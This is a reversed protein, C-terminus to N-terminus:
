ACRTARACGSWNTSSRATFIPTTSGWFSSSYLGSQWKKGEKPCCAPVGDASASGDRRQRLNALMGAPFPVCMVRLPDSVVGRSSEGQIPLRGKRFLFPGVIRGLGDMLRPGIPVAALQPHYHLFTYGLRHALVGDTATQDGIVVGPRPLDRYPTIRLPKGASAIYMVRIGAPAPVATPRRASNTAFCVVRLGPIASAREAIQAVGQDLSEQSSDWYAVLPEVDILATRASLEGARRLLDDAETLRGYESV